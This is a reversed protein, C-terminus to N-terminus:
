LQWFGGSGRWLERERPLGDYIAAEVQEHTKFVLDSLREKEMPDDSSVRALRKRYIHKGRPSPVIVLAMTHAVEMRQEIFLDAVRNCSKESILGGEDYLSFERVNMLEVMLAGVLACWHTLKYYHAEAGDRVPM